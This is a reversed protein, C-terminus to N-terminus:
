NSTLGFGRTNSPLLRTAGQAGTAEAGGLRTAEAKLRFFVSEEVQPPMKAPVDVASTLAAMLAQRERVRAACAACGAAHAAAEPLPEGDALAQIHSDNLCTM